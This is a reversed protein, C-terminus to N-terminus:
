KLYKKSTNYFEKMMNECIDIDPVEIQMSWDCDLRTESIDPTMTVTVWVESGKHPKFCPYKNRWDTFRFFIQYDIARDGYKDKHIGFSKAWM